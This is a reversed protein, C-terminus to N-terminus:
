FMHMSGSGIMHNNLYMAQRTAIMHDRLAQERFLRNMEQEQFQRNMEQQLRQTNRSKRKKLEDYEYNAVNQAWDDFWNLDNKNDTNNLIKTRYKKITAIERDSLTHEKDEKNSYKNIMKNFYKDDSLLKNYIKQKERREIRPIFRTTEKYRKKGAATLTGDPNQYRRVGWKMGMIGFHALYPDDWYDGSVMGYHKLYYQAM